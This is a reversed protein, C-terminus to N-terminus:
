TPNIRPTWFERRDRAVDMRRLSLGIQIRRPRRCGSSRSLAILHKSLLRNSRSLRGLNQDSDTDRHSRTGCHRKTSHERVSATRDVANETSGHTIIAFTETTNRSLKSPPRYSSSQDSSRQRTQGQQRARREGGIQRRCRLDVLRRGHDRRGIAPGPAVDSRRRRSRRRSCPGCRRSEEPDRAWRRGCCWRREPAPEADGAGTAVISTAPEAPRQCNADDACEAVVTEHVDM